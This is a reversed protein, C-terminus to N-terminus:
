ELRGNRGTMEDFVATETGDVHLRALPLAVFHFDMPFGLHYDHAGARPAGGHGHFQRLGSFLDQQQFLAPVVLSDAVM